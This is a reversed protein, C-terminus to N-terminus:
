RRPQKAEILTDTKTDGDWRRLEAHGNASDYVERAITAALQEGENGPRAASHAMGNLTVCHCPEGKGNTYSSHYVRIM